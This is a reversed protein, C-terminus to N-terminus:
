EINRIQERIKEIESKIEIVAKSMRFDGAKAGITNAERQMEQAIFDLKKGADQKSREITNKYATVHGGLRIIEETIDCNRAFLAVEEGLRTKDHKGSNTIDKTSQILKKRHENVSEKSYQKIERLCKQILALRKKFDVALRAGEAERYGVLSKVAKETAKQVYGWPIEKRKGEKVEVVGPVKILDRIEIDGKVGLKKKLGRVKRLYQRASRENINVVQEVDNDKVEKNIKIFVKGRFIKDEVMKQMRQEVLFYDNVPTCTLSLTKYNLTKIEVEVKGQRCKEEGKGFGTMSRIM